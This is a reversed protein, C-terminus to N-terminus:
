FCIYQNSVKICIKITTTQKLKSKTPFLLSSLSGIKYCSTNSSSNYLNTTMTSFMISLVIFRLFIQQTSGTLQVLLQCLATHNLYHISKAHGGGLMFQAIGVTHGQCPWQGVRAMLHGRWTWSKFKAKNQLLGLLIYLSQKGNKVTIAYHGIQPMLM